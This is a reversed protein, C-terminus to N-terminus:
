FNYLSYIWKVECANFCCISVIQRVHIFDNNWMCSIENTTMIYGIKIEASSTDWWSSTNMIKDQATPFTATLDHLGGESPQGQLM